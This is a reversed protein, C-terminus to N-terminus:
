WTNNTTKKIFRFRNSFYRGLVHCIAYGSWTNVAGIQLDEKM